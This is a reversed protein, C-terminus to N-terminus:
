LLHTVIIQLEGSDARSPSVLLLSSPRKWFSASARGSLCLFFTHTRPTARYLGPSCHSHEFHSYSVRAPRDPLRPLAPSSGPAIRPRCSDAADGRAKGASALDAYSPSATDCLVSPAAGGGGGVGGPQLRVTKSEPTQTQSVIASRIRKERLRVWILLM